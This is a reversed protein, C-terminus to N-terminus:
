ENFTSFPSNPSATAHSRLTRNPVRKSGALSVAPHWDKNPEIGSHFRDALDTALAAIVSSNPVVSLLLTAMVGMRCCCNKFSCSLDSFAPPASACRTTPARWATLPARRAGKSRMTAPPPPPPGSPPWTGGGGRRRTAPSKRSALKRASAPAPAPNNAVRAPITGRSGGGVEEEEEEEDGEDDKVGSATVAAAAAKRFDAPLFDGCGGEEAGVGVGVGNGHLLSTNLVCPRLGVPLLTTTPKDLMSFLWTSAAAGPTPQPWGSSAARATAM